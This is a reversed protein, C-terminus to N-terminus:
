NTNGAVESQDDTCMLEIIVQDLQRSIALVRETTLDEESEVLRELEARLERLQEIPM